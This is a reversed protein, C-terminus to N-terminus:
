DLVELQPCAASLEGLDAKTADNWRIDLTRLQPCTGARLAEALAAV